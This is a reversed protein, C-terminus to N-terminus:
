CPPPFSPSCRMPMMAQIKMTQDGAPQRSLDQTAAAPEQVVKRDAQDAGDDAAEQEFLEPQLDHRIEPPLQDGGGDAGDNEQQDPARDPPGSANAVCPQSGQPPWAV